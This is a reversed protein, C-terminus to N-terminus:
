DSKAAKKVEWPRPPAKPLPVGAERDRDRRARGM